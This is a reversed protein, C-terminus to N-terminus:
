ASNVEITLTLSMIDGEEAKAAIRAVAKIPVIFNGDKPFLATTWEFGDIRVAAPIMGWGYTVRRQIALLEASIPPPVTVFYFPAPGRWYWVPGEFQITM